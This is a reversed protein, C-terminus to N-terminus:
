KRQVAWSEFKKAASITERTAMLCGSSVNARFLKEEIMPEILTLKNILTRQAHNHMLLLARQSVNLTIDNFDTFSSSPKMDPGIRNLIDLLKSDVSSSLNFKQDDEALLYSGDPPAFRKAENAEAARGSAVNASVILELWCCVIFLTAKIHCSLTM